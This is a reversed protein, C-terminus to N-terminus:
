LDFVARERAINIAKHTVEDSAVNTLEEATARVRDFLEKYTWYNTAGVALAKGSGHATVAHELAARIMM